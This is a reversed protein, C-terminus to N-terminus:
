LTKCGLHTDSAVCTFHSTNNVDTHDVNLVWYPLSYNTVVTTQNSKCPNLRSYPRNDIIYLSATPLAENTASYTTATVGLHKQSVFRDQTGTSMVKGTNSNVCQYAIRVSAGALTNMLLGDPNSINYSCLVDGKSSSVLSCSASNIAITTGPVSVSFSPHPEPAATAEPSTPSESCAALMAAVFVAPILRRMAIAGPLQIRRSGPSPPDGGGLDTECVTVPLPVSPYPRRPPSSGRLGPVITDRPGVSLPPVSDLYMSLKMLPVKRPGHCRAQKVVGLIRSAMVGFDGPPARNLENIPFSNRSTDGPAPPDTRWTIPQLGSLPQSLAVAIHATAKHDQAEGAVIEGSALQQRRRETPSLTLQAPSNATSRLTATM